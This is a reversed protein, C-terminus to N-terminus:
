HTNRRGYETRFITCKYGEIGKKKGTELNKSIFNNELEIEIEEIEDEVIRM